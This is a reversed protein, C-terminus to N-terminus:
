SQGRDCRGTTPSIDTRNTRVCGFAGTTWPKGITGAFFKEEGGTTFIARNATPLHFPQAVARLTFLALLLFALPATM